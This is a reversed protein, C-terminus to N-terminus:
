YPAAGEADTRDPAPGSTAPTPALPFALRVQTGTPFLRTPSISAEGGIRRMQEVIIALGLGSGEPGSGAKRVFPRLAQDIDDIGPGGDDVTVILQERESAASLVIKAGDSGHKIANDLANRLASTAAVVPVLSPNDAGAVVELEVGASDADALVDALVSRLVTTFAETSTHSDPASQARALTLLQEVVHRSRAVGEGLDELRARLQTDDPALAARELQLSVATLPLRLEHAAQMIFLREHAVTTAVRERQINLASLFGQLERPARAADFSPMDAGDSHAVEDALARVPALARRTALVLAILLVPILILFPVIAALAASRAIDTRAAVPQAAVVAPGDGIRAIAIREPVGDITVTMLGPTTDSPLGAAALSTIDIDTTPDDAAPSDTTLTSDAQAASAALTAVQTLVDDQLSKASTFTSRYSWAGGLCAVVLTLAALTVSLRGSISHM